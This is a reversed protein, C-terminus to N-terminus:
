WDACLEGKINIQYRGIIAFNVLRIKFLFTFVVNNFDVM